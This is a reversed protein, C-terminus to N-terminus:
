DEQISQILHRHRVLRKWNDFKKTTPDYAEEIRTRDVVFFGRYDVDHVTKGHARDGIQVVGDHATLGAGSAEFYAVSMFVTFTNSRTTTNGMIKSLIRNRTHFDVSSGEHEARDAVEFLQRPDDPNSGRDLPLSRLLTNDRPDRYNTRTSDPQSAFFDFSRFPRSGPTGPLEKNAIPDVADRSKIFEAWWNRTAGENNDNLRHIKYANTVDTNYGLSDL